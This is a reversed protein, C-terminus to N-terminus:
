VFMVCICFRKVVKSKASKRAKVTVVKKKDGKKMESNESRNETKPVENESNNSIRSSRRMKYYFFDVAYIM